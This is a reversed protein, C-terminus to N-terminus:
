HVVWGPAGVLFRGRLVELTYVQTPEDHRVVEEVVTTGRKALRGLRGYRTLTDGPEIRGAEVLRVRGRRLVTLKHEPTAELVETAERVRIVVTGPATRTRVEHVIEGSLWGVRSLKAPAMVHMGPEVMEIPLLGEDTRVLTGSPFSSPCSVLGCSNGGLLVIETGHCNIVTDWQCLASKISSIDNQNAEVTTLLTSGALTMNSLAGLDEATQQINQRNTELGGDVSVFSTLPLGIALKLNENGKVPDFVEGDHNEVQINLTDITKASVTLTGIDGGDVNVIADVISTAQVLLDQINGNITNQINVNSDVTDIRTAINLTGGTVSGIITSLDFSNFNSVNGIVQQVSLANFDDLNGIAQVISTTGFTSLDGIAQSISTTDFNSLNGIIQEITLSGFNSLDGVVQSINDAKTDVEDIAADTEDVEDLIREVQEGAQQVALDLGNLMGEISELRGSAQKSFLDLSNEISEALVLVKDPM